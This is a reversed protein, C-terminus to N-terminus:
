HYPSWRSRCEKGVRREESRARRLHDHALEIPDGDGDDAPEPQRRTLLSGLREQAIGRAIEESLDTFMAIRPPVPLSPEPSPARQASAPWEMMRPERSASRARVLAASSRSRVRFSAIM